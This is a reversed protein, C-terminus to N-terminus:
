HLMGGGDVEGLILGMLKDAMMRRGEPTLERFNELILAAYRLAMESAKNSEDVAKLFDCISIEM